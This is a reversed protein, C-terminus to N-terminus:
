RHWHMCRFSLVYRDSSSPIVEGVGYGVGSYLRTATTAHSGDDGGGGADSGTTQLSSAIDASSLNISPSWVIEADALCEDALKSDASNLQLAGADDTTTTTTTTAVTTTVHHDDDGVAAAAAAASDTTQLCSALEASLLDVSLNWMVEADALCENALKGDSSNLQSAGTDCTTTSTTTTTATTTAVTTTAAASETTQLCSALDASSLSVSPNWMVETDALCENALECDSSNLQIADADGTTTITTTTAATTTAVTTTVDTSATTATNFASLLMSVARQQHQMQQWRKLQTKDEDTLQMMTASVNDAAFVCPM